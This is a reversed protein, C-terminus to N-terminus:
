TDLLLRTTKHKMLLQHTLTLKSLRIQDSHCKAHKAM